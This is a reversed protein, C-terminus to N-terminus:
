NNQNKLNELTYLIGEDLNTKIEFGFKYLWSKIVYREIQLHTECVNSENGNPL